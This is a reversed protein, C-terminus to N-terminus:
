TVGMGPCPAGLDGPGARLYMPSQDLEGSPALTASTDTRGVKRKIPLQKTNPYTPQIPYEAPLVSGRYARGRV